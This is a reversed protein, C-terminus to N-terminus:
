PRDSPPSTSRGRRVRGPIQGCKEIILNMIGGEALNAAPPPGRADRGSGDPGAVPRHCGTAALDSSSRLDKAAVGRVAQQAQAVLGDLQASSGVNLSKFREFFETLNGIASDRFVKKEGDNGSGSIRETLHSVLKM